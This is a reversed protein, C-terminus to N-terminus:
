LFLFNAIMPIFSQFDLMCKRYDILFTYGEASFSFLPIHQETFIEM